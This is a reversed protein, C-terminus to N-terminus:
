SGWLANEGSFVAPGGGTTRPGPETTHVSGVRLISRGTRLIPGPGGGLWWGWGRGLGVQPPFVAGTGEPLVVVGAVVSRKLLTSGDLSIHLCSPDRFAHQIGFWYKLVGKNAVTFSKKALPSERAHRLQHGFCDDILFGIGWVLQKFFWVTRPNLCDAALAPLARRLAICREDGVLPRFLALVARINPDAVASLGGLDLFGQRCVLILPKQGTPVLPPEWAAEELFITLHREQGEGSSFPADVLAVLLAQIKEKDSASRMGCKGECAWKSVLALLALSSCVRAEATESSALPAGVAEDGLHRLSKKMLHHDPLGVLGVLKVWVPWGHSTWRSADGRQSELRLSKFIQPINWLCHSGAVLSRRYSARLAIPLRLLEITIDLDPRLDEVFSRLPMTTRQEGPAGSFVVYKQSRGDPSCVAHQLLDDVWLSQAGNAVFGAGETDFRLRWKRRADADLLRREGTERHVICQRGNFEHLSVVGSHPCVVFEESQLMESRPRTPQPIPGICTACRRFTSTQLMNRNIQMHAHRIPARCRRLLARSRLALRFCRRSAVRVGSFLGRRRRALDSLLICLTLM